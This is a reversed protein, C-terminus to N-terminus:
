HTAASLQELVDVHRRCLPLLEREILHRGDCPLDDSQMIKEYESMGHEEGQRLASLVSRSGLVMATGVVAAAVAGWVGSCDAPEGGAEAIRERLRLIAARHDNRIHELEETPSHDRLSPIAMDYSEAASIEGRLLSNLVGCSPHAERPPPQVPEHISNGTM